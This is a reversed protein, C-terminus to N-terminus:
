ACCAIRFIDNTDLPERIDKDRYGFANQYVIKDGKVMVVAMGVTKGEDMYGRIKGEIQAANLRQVSPQAAFLATAAMVAFIFCGKKM